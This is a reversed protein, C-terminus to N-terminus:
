RTFRAWWVQRNEDFDETNVYSCKGGWELLVRDFSWSYSGAYMDSYSYKDGDDKHKWKIGELYFRGEPELIKKAFTLINSLSEFNCHQIVSICTILSYKDDRPDDTPLFTKIEKIADKINQLSTTSIDMAAKKFAPSKKLAHGYGPGIDLYSKANLFYDHFDDQFGRTMTEFNGDGLSDKIGKLHVNNWFSTSDSIKQEM